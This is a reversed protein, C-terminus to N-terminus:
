RRVEDIEFGEELTKLVEYAYTPYIREHWNSWVIPYHRSVFLNSVKTHREIIRKQNETIRWLGESSEYSAVVHHGFSGSKVGIGIAPINMSKLFFINMYTVDRCNGMIRDEEKFHKWQWDPNSLGCGPTIKGEVKIYSVEASPHDTHYDFSHTLMSDIENAIKEVRANKFGESFMECTLFGRIEQLTNVDVFLWNFDEKSMRRDRFVEVWKLCYYNPVEIESYKTGEPYQGVKEFFLPYIISNAGWVLAIDAELSYEEIKWPVIADTEVFYDYLDLVYDKLEKRVEEDSIPLVAGYDLAIALAIRDYDSIDREEALWLLVELQTNHTPFDCSTFNSPKGYKQMVKFAKEIETDNSYLLFLIQEKAKKEKLDIGDKFEPLDDFDEILMTFNSKKELRQIEATIETVNKSEAQDQTRNEEQNTTPPTVTGFIVITVGVITVAVMFIIGIVLAKERGAFLKIKM